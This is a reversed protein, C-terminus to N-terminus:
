GHLHDCINCCIHICQWSIVEIIEQKWKQYVHGDRHYLFCIYRLELINHHILNMFFHFLKDPEIRVQNIVRITLYILFYCFLNYLLLILILKHQQISLCFLNFKKVVFFDFGMDIIVIDIQM